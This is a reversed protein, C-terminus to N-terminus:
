DRVRDSQALQESELVDSLLLILGNRIDDRLKNCAQLDSKKDLERCRTLLGFAQKLARTYRLNEFAGKATSDQHVCQKLLTILENFLLACEGFRDMQVATEIATCYIQLRERDLRSHADIQGSWDDGSMDSNVDNNIGSNVDTNVDSNDNANM